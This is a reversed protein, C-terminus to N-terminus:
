NPPELRKSYMTSGTLGISPSPSSDLLGPGPGHTELGSSTPQGADSNCTCNCRHFFLSICMHSSFSHSPSSWDGCLIIEITWHAISLTKLGKYDRYMVQIKRGENPNDECYCTLHFNYLILVGRAEQPYM